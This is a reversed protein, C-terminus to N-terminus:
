QHIFINVGVNLINVGVNMINVGVSMINPFYHVFYPSGFGADFHAKEQLTRYYCLRLAWNGHCDLM